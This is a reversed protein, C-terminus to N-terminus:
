VDVELTIPTQTVVIAYRKKAAVSLKIKTEESAIRGMNALSINRKAEETAKRGIGRIKNAAGIKRKTEESHPKGLKNKNGKNAESIKRRTEQSVPHGILTAIVKAKHEATLKRGIKTLGMKKKTEDSWKLGFNSEAKKRLNYGFERDYCLTWDIWVQEREILKERYWVYEVVKFEFTAEGHKNWSSQLHKNPHKNYRLHHIHLYFRDYLNVASGIYILGTILNLIQYIGSTKPYM